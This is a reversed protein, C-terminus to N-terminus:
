AARQVWLWAQAEARLAARCLRKLFEARRRAAREVVAQCLRPLAAVSPLAMRELADLDVALGRERLVRAVGERIPEEVPLNSIIEFLVVHLPDAFDDAQLWCCARDYALDTHRLITGLIVSELGTDKLM